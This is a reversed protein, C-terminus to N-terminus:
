PRDNNDDYTMTNAFGQSEIERLRPKGNIDGGCEKLKIQVIAKKLEYNLVNNAQSALKAQAIATNTDIEGKDLKQMCGFLFALLSKTNIPAPTINENLKCM